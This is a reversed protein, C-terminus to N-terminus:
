KANCKIIFICSSKLLQPWLFLAYITDKVLIALRSNQIHEEGKEFNYFIHMLITERECVFCCCCCCLVCM